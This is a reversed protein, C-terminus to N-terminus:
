CTNTGAQETQRFVQNELFGHSEFELNPIELDNHGIKLTGLIINTTGSSSFRFLNELKRGFFCLFFLRLFITKGHSLTQVAIAM